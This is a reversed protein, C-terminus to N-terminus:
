FFAHQGGFLKPGPDCSSAFLPLLILPPKIGAAQDEDVLGPGLRVHGGQPTPCRPSPPEMGLNGVAVPAGHREECREPAVPDIGRADEVLRDVSLSKDIVDLLAEHRRQRGAIDDDHVIQRAVFSRSHTCGDATDARPEQEQRGVTRVEIWDFLDEGFQLVEHAFGCFSGM